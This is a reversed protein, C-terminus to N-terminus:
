DTKLERKPADGDDEETWAMRVYDAIVINAVVVAAIGCWGVMDRDGDFMIYFMFYFTALPFLVMWLSYRILKLTVTRNEPAWFLEYYSVM